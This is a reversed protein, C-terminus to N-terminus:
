QEELIHKLCPGAHCKLKQESVVEAWIAQTANRCCILWHLIHKLQFPVFGGDALIKFVAWVDRHLNESM